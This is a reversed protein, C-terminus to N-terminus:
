NLTRSIITREPYGEKKLHWAYQLIKERDPVAVVPTVSRTRPTPNSGVFAQAVTM